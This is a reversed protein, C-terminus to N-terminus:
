VWGPKKSLKSYVQDAYYTPFKNFIICHLQLTVTHKTYHPKFIIAIPKTAPLLSPPTPHPYFNIPNQQSSM